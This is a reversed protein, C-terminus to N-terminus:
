FKLDIKPLKLPIAIGTLERVIMLAKSILATAKLQVTVMLKEAKSINEAAVEEAKKNRRSRWCIDGPPM